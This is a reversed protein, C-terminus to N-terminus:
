IHILSLGTSAYEAIYVDTMQGNQDYAAYVNETGDENYAIGSKKMGNKYYSVESALVDGHYEYEDWGELEGEADYRYRTQIQGTENYECVERVTYDMYQEQRTLRISDLLEHKRTDLTINETQEIGEVLVDIAAVYDEQQMYLDCEM